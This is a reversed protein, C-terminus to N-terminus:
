YPCNHEAVRHLLLTTLPSSVADEEQRVTENATSTHVKNILPKTAPCVTRHATTEVLAISLRPSKGDHDFSLLTGDYRSQIAHHKKRKDCCCRRLVITLITVILLVLLAVIVCTQQHQQIMDRLIQYIMESSRTLNSAFPVPPTNVLGTVSTSNYEHALPEITSNLIEPKINMSYMRFRAAVDRLLEEEELSYQGSYRYVHLEGNNRVFRYDFSMTWTNILTFDSFYVLVFDNWDLFVRTHDIDLPSCEILPVSQPRIATIDNVTRSAMSPQDYNWEGISGIIDEYIHM